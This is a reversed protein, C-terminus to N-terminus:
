SVRRRESVPLARCSVVLSDPDDIAASDTFDGSWVLDGFGNYHLLAEMERPFFQRQQLPVTWPRSGDLPSFEFQMDLVQRFVDYRFREGYRVLGRKPYRFRPAGYRRTPDAGLYDPHPLSFDFVLRGRPALHARAGALFGEVDKRETLHLVTNFAAIVLPFRKRLRVRRMDGSVVRVRKRVEAPEKAVSAKFAVLMPKSREVGTVSVGARALALAIRGTGAGYELVPGGSERGLRVYYAIDDRRTRYAQDYYEPDEYHARAGVDGDFAPFESQATLEPEKGRVRRAV